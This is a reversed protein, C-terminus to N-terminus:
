PKAGAALQKRYKESEWNAIFAKAAEGMTQLTLNAARLTEEIFVVAMLTQELTLAASEEMRYRVTGSARDILATEGLTGTLFVMQDPYLPEALLKEEPYGDGRLFSQLYPTDSVFENEGTQRIRAEPFSDGSLGFYGALRENAAAHISIAEAADEAHAIIGHNQMVLVAPRRGALAEVRKIEDRISFTLRGGPDVYPVMGWAFHADAFAVALISECEKACAALNAYVSHSHIVYRDLLSHFGAEVSPRLAALGAIQKVQGKTFAACESEVDSFDGPQHSLYFERVAAGDLVAYAADERIDSLRYGSAKIAMLGGELKVSTNGGGGQVYDTRAGIECSLTRFAQLREQHTTFFDMQKEEQDM